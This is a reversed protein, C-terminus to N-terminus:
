ILRPTGGKLLKFEYATVTQEPNWSGYIKTWAEQFEGMSQFGEKRVDDLSIEALRQKFRRTILIHGQPKTFWRDRIGYAKGVTWMRRSIRRTQVKTGQLVLALLRRKFIAM